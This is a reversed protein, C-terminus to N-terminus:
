ATVLLADLDPAYYRREMRTNDGLKLYKWRVKGIVPENQWETARRGLTDNSVDLYEAAGSLSLWMGNSNMRRRLILRSSDSKATVDVEESECARPLALASDGEISRDM